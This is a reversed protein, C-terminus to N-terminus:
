LSLLWGSCLGFDVVGAHRKFYQPVFILGMLTRTEPQNQAPPSLSTLEIVARLSTHEPGRQSM